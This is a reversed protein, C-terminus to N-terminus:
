RVDGRGQGSYRGTEPLIRFQRGDRMVLGRDQVGVTWPLIRGDQM